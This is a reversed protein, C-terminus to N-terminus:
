VLSWLLCIIGPIKFCLTVDHINLNFDMSTEGKTAQLRCYNFYYKISLDITFSVLILPYIASLLVSDEKYVFRGWSAEWWSLEATHLPSFLSIEERGHQRWDLLPLNEWGSGGSCQHFTDKWLLPWSSECPLTISIKLNSIWASWSKVLNRHSSRWLFIINTLLHSARMVYLGTESPLIIDSSHM